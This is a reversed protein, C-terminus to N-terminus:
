EESKYRPRPDLSGPLCFWRYSLTFDDSHKNSVSRDGLSRTWGEDLPGNSERRVEEKLKSDCGAKTEDADVINWLQTLGPKALGMPKSTITIMKQWLVWGEAWAPGAILLLAVVLLLRRM